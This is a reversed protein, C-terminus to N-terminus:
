RTLPREQHIFRATLLKGWGIEYYAREKCEKVDCKGRKDADPTWWQVV